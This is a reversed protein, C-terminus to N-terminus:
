LGIEEPYFHIFKALEAKDSSVRVALQFAVCKDNRFRSRLMKTECNTGARNVALRLRCSPWHGVKFGTNCLQGSVCIEGM